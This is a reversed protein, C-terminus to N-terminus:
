TCHLMPVCFFGDEIDACIFMYVGYGNCIFHLRLLISGVGAAPLLHNAPFIYYIIVSPPTGLLIHYCNNNTHRCAIM